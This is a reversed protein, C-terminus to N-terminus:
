TMSSCVTRPMEKLECGSCMHKPANVSVAAKLCLAAEVDVVEGGYIAAECLAAALMSTAMESAGLLGLDCESEEDDDADDLAREECCLEFGRAARSVRSLQSGDAERGSLEGSGGAASPARVLVSSLRARPLPLLLEEVLSESELLEVSM